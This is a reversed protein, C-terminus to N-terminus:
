AGSIFVRCARNVLRAEIDPHHSTELSSSVAALIVIACCIGIFQRGPAVQEATTCTQM